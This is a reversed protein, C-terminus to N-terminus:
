SARKTEERTLFGAVIEGFRDLSEPMDTRTHFAATLPSNDGNYQMDFVIADSFKEGGIEVDVRCRIFEAREALVRTEPLPFSGYHLMTNSITKVTDALDLGHTTQSVHDHKHTTVSRTNHMDTEDNLWWKADVTVRIIRADRSPIQLPELTEFVPM